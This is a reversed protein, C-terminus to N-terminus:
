LIGLNQGQSQTLSKDQITKYGSINNIGWCFESHPIAHTPPREGARRCAQNELNKAATLPGVGGWRWGLKIGLAVSFVTGGVLLFFVIAPGHVM